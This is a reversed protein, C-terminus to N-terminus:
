PSGLFSDDARFRRSGKENRFGNDAGLAPLPKGDATILTRVVSLEGFFLGRPYGVLKYPVVNLFPLM